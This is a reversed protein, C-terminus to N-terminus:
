IWQGNKSNNTKENKWQVLEKDIVYVLGKDSIQNAFM